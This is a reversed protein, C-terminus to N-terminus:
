KNFNKADLRLNNKIARVTLNYSNRAESSEDNAMSMVHGRMSELYRDIDRRIAELALVQEKAKEALQRNTFKRKM